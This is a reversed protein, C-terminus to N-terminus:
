EINKRGSYCVCGMIAKFPRECKRLPVLRMYDQRRWVRTKNSSMMTTACHSVTPKLTNSLRCKWKWVMASNTHTRSQETNIISDSVRAWQYVQCKWLTELFLREPKSWRYARETLATSKEWRQSMSRWLRLPARQMASRHFCLEQDTGAGRLIKCRSTERRGLTQM